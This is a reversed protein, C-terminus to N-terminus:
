LKKKKIMEKIDKALQKPNPKITEGPSFLDGLNNLWGLEAKKLGPNFLKDYEAQVEEKNLMGAKKKKKVVEWANLSAPDSSLDVPKKGFLKKLLASHQEPSIEGANLALGLNYADMKEYDQIGKLMGKPQKPAEGSQLLGGYYQDKKEEFEKIKAQYEDPTIKKKLYQDIVKNHEWNINSLAPDMYISNTPKKFLLMNPIQLDTNVPLELHKGAGWIKDYGQHFDSLSLNGTQYEKVLQEQDAYKLGLAKQNAALNAQKVEHAKEIKLLHSKPNEWWPYTNLSRSRTLSEVEGRPKLVGRPLRWDYSEDTFIPLDDDWGKIEPPNKVGREKALKVGEPSYRPTLQEPKFAMFTNYPGAEMVDSYHPYWLSDYGKDQLMPIFQDQWTKATGGINYMDSLLGRPATFGQRMNEELYGIVKDPDNWKVADAPYKLASQADMLYPKIREGATGPDGFKLGSMFDVTGEPVQKGSYQGSITPDVTVHIGLDHEPPPLKPRVFEAPSGSGHTVAVVPPKKPPLKWGSTLTMGPVAGAGTVPMGFTNLATEANLQAGFRRPDYDTSMSPATGTQEAAIDKAADVLGAGAGIISMPIKGIGELLQTSLGERRRTAALRQRLAAAEFPDALLGEM